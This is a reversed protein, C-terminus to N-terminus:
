LYNTVLLLKQVVRSSLYPSNFICDWYLKVQQFHPESLLFTAATRSSNQMLDAWSLDPLSSSDVRFPHLSVGANNLMSWSNQQPSPIIWCQLSDLNQLITTIYWYSHASMNLRSRSPARKWSLILIVRSVHDRQLHTRHSVELDIM